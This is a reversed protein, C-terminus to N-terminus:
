AMGTVNNRFQNYFGVKELEELSKKIIAVPGERKNFFKKVCSPWAKVSSPIDNASIIIVPLNPFFADVYEAIETGVFSDLFYDFIALDYQKLKAFTSMEALSGYCDVEVGMSKGMVQFLMQCDKDDDILVIRKAVNLSPEPIPNAMYNEMENMATSTNMNM